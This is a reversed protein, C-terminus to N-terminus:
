FITKGLQSGGNLNGTISYTIGLTNRKGCERDPNVQASSTNELRETCCTEFSEQCPNNFDITNRIIIKGSGDTMAATTKCLHSPVCEGEPCM